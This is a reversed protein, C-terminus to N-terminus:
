IEKFKWDSKLHLKLAARHELKYVGKEYAYPLRKLM